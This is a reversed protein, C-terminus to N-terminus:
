NKFDEDENIILLRNFFYMNEQNTCFEKPNNTLGYLAM